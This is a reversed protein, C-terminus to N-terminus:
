SGRAVCRSRGEDESGAVPVVAQGRSDLLVVDEGISTTHASFRASLSCSAHIIRATITAEV